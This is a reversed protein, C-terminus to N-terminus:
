LTGRKPRKRCQAVKKSKKEQRWLAGRPKKKSKLRLRCLRILTFPGRKVKELFGLFGSTGLPDGRQIKEASHSKKEFKKIINGFPGGEPKKSIKCSFTHYYIGFPGGKVNKPVTRCKGFSFITKRKKLRLYLM